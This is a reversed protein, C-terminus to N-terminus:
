VPNRPSETSTASLLEQWNETELLRDALRELAELSAIGEIASKVQEDPEDFRKSGLRFILARAEEAKGKAEGKAEGIAEGEQLIAQYVVSEKMERVGKSLRNILSTKYRLGMLLATATWLLGREGAAAERDIRLEMQRVIDPLQAESVNAIPALPLIALSGALIAEVPTEWVKVLRYTFEMRGGGPALFGTRGTFGAGEAEPRLLIVVSQVPLAFKYFALASYLFVREDGGLEDGSQFEIDALYPDVGEGEVLLIRDADATLTTLNTNELRVRTGPLGVYHLWALPDAELPHKTATDFPKRLRSEPM